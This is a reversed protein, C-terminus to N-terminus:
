CFIRYSIYFYIFWCFCNILRFYRLVELYGDCNQNNDFFYFYILLLNFPAACILFATTSANVNLTDRAHCPM